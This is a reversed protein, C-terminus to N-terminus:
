LISIIQNETLFASETNEPTTKAKKVTEVQFLTHSIVQIAGTSIIKMLGLLTCLLHFLVRSTTTTIINSSYLYRACDTSIANPSCATSARTTGTRSWSPFLLSTKTRVTCDGRGEEDVDCWIAMSYFFYYDNM